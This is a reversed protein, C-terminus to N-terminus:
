EDLLAAVKHASIIKAIEVRDETRRAEREAREKRNLFHVGALRGEPYRSIRVRFPHTQWDWDIRVKRGLYFIYGSYSRHRYPWRCAAHADRQEQVHADWWDPRDEWRPYLPHKGSDAFKRWGANFDYDKCSWYKPLHGSFGNTRERVLFPNRTSTIERTRAILM